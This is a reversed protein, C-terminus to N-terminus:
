LLTITSRIIIIIIIIIIIVIIKDVHYWRIIKSMNYYKVYVMYVYMFSRYVTCTVRIDPVSRM